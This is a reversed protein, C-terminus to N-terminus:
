DEGSNANANFGDNSPNPGDSNSVDDRQFVLPKRQKNIKTVDDLEADVLYGLMRDYTTTWTALANPHYILHWVQELPAFIDGFNQTDAALQNIRYVIVQCQQQM